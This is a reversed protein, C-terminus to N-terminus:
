FGYNRAFTQLKSEHGREWEEDSWLLFLVNWFSQIRGVTQATDQICDTYSSPCQSHAPRFLIPTKTRTPHLIIWEGHKHGTLGGIWQSGPSKEGPIFRCSRSVSWKMGFLAATLYEPIQVGVKWVDDHLLTWTTRVPVLEVNGQIRQLM